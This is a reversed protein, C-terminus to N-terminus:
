SRKRRRLQKFVEESKDVELRNYAAACLSRNSALACRIEDSADNAMHEQLACSLAPNRALGLRVMVARDDVLQQQIRDPLSENRALAARVQESKQSALWSCDAMTLGSTRAIEMAALESLCAADARGSRAQEFRVSQKNLIARRLEAGIANHEMEHLLFSPPANHHLCALELLDHDHEEPRLLLAICEALVQQPCDSRELVARRVKPDPDRVLRSLLDNPCEAHRAVQERRAPNPDGLLRAMQAGTMGVESSAPRLKLREFLVEYEAVQDRMTERLPVTAGIAALVARQDLKRGDIYCAERGDAVATCIDAGSFARSSGALEDLDFREPVQGGARLHVDFIEMREAHSPFGAYFIEDFRGKRLLEPPVLSINNATAIVFVPRTKEQLWNLLAALMNQSVESKGVGRAAFAKELEDLWLVCPSVAEALDLARLLNHESEGVYKGLLAGMDLRLLPLGFERAAAKASLSKGCGPMGALLVGKPAAVGERLARDPDRLVVAKRKLWQKLNGLGGIQDMADGTKIMELVGGKRILQEKERLVLDIMDPTLVAGQQRLQRLMLTADHLGMGSLSSLLRARLDAPQEPIALALRAAETALHSDLEARDPLSLPMLTVLARLEAPLELTEAVLVVCAQGSHHAQLRLLLACLRALAHKDQELALRVNKILYLTRDPNDDLLQELDRGLEAPQARDHPKKKAFDIWGYAQNWEKVKLDFRAAFHKMLGDLRREEESQVYFATHGARFLSGIRNEFDIKGSM